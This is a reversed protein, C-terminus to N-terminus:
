ATSPKPDDEELRIYYYLKQIRENSFIDHNM